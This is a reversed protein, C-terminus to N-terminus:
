AGQRLGAGLRRWRLLLVFCAAAFVLGGLLLPSALASVAAGFDALAMRPIEGLVLDADSGPRALIGEGSAGALSRAANRLLAATTPVLWLGGFVLQEVLTILGFGVVLVVWSWRRFWAGLLVLMMIIPAAWLLALPLGTLLRLALAVTASLLSAWPLSAWAALGESRGVFVLALVHGGFWGILLGAAPVVVLHVFLPVGLAAAHSVPLALWFEVSRDGHDRRALGAAFIVASVLAIAFMVISTVAVPAFALLIQMAEPPPAQDADMRVTGLASILAAIGLPILALLSWGFRHQLWERQMLPIFQRAFM